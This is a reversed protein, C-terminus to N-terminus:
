VSRTSRSSLTSLVCCVATFLMLISHVRFPFDVLAHFMCGFLSLLLIARIPWGVFFGGSFFGRGIIMLFPMLALGLGVWGWCLLAELWDNHLQIFWTPEFTPFYLQVLSDYAGPGCGFPQNDLAMQWGTEYLRIRGLDLWGNGPQQFRALLRPGEWLGGLILMGLVVSCVAWGIRPIPRRLAMWIIVASALINGFLVLTGGRSLSVIPCLAMVLTCGLLIKLRYSHWKSNRVKAPHIVYWLWFALSVPWLLNLYQAGNAHYAYPGFQGTNFKIIAPEVLWLLKNTNTLHQLLSVAALLGGNITLVWLIRRLRTPMQTRQAGHGQLWRRTGWFFGALGLYIYFHNWSARQDYSHPLWELCKLYTMAWVNQIARANIAACFFYGLLAITLAMLGRRFYIEFQSDNSSHLSVIGSAKSRFKWLRGERILPYVLFLAGLALGVDTLM